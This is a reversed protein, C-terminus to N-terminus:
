LILFLFPSGHLRLSTLIPSLHMDFCVPSTCSVMRKRLQELKKKREDMSLNTSKSGDDEKMEEDADADADARDGEVTQMGNIEETFKSASQAVDKVKKVVAAM